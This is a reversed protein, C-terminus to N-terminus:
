EDCVTVVQWGLKKLDERIEETVQGESVYGQSKMNRADAESDYDNYMGSCYWDLYDGESRLDAIIGGASRWSCHWIDERLITVVDNKQFDNNCLAAYLNQAYYDQDRVKNKFWQADMMDKLMNPKNNANPKAPEPWNVSDSYKTKKM